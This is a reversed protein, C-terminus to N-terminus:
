WQSWYAAMRGTLLLCSTSALYALKARVESVAVVTAATYISTIRTGSSSNTMTTMAESQM